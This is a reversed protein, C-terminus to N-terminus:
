KKEVVDTNSKSSNKAEAIASEAKNIKELLEQNEKKKAEVM